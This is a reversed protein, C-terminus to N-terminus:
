LFIHLVKLLRHRVVKKEVVWGYSITAVTTIGLLYFSSRLRALEIPFTGLQTNPVDMNEVRHSKATKMYDFNLMKGLHM